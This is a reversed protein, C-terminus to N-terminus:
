ACAEIVEALDAISGNLFLAEILEEETGEPLCFATNLDRLIAVAHLSDGGVDFYGDLVGFDHHGLRQTWVHHIREQTPTVSTAPDASESQWPSPLAARDIKGNVTLPIHDLSLVRGPVMYKPLQTAVHSRVQQEFDDCSSESPVVYAVLLSQGSHPHSPADVLVQSVSSLQSITAEIEGLEVRYGNIKVQHDERGLIEIDGGPRFRGLDGTRYLREGTRPHVFFRESTREPDHLYGEAVGAGGIHIEGTVWTPCPEGWRNLVYMKQNSLAKGYPISAWGEKVEDIPYTISWISGETAGGLSVVRAQPLVARIRGPLDLPIWDGSLLVLRLGGTMGREELADTFLRMPAPVTNWITVSHQEVLDAWHHPDGAHTPHPIVLAGGAALIGFIDFVSLDFTAPALSLVRDASTLGARDMIDQVTNAASCHRIMVGKPEGTSGSTFIVYALDEPSSEDPVPEPDHLDLQWPDVVQVGDPIVDAAQALSTLVVKVACRELLRRRRATPTDPDIAVYAAGAQLVGLISAIQMSGPSIIVAVLEGPGPRHAQHIASAILRAQLALEAHTMVGTQDLIAPAGPHLKAARAALDHLRAPPIPAATENALAQESAATASLPVVQGPQHWVQRDHALRLLLAIYATAMEDIVSEHFLGEVVHWATLLEGGSEFVQHECWVQPTVVELSDLRGWRAIGDPVHDRLTTVHVVPASAEGNRRRLERLERVASCIEGSRLQAAYDSTEQIRALLTTEPGHDISVLGSVTGQGIGQAEVANSRHAVNLCFRPEKSFARVVEAFVALPLDEVAVMHEAAAKRLAEWDPAALYQIFHRHTPTDVDEPAHALPLDPRPNPLHELREPVPTLSGPSTFARVLPIQSVARGPEDIQDAIISLLLLLSSLDLVLMDADIHLRTKNDQGRDLRIRLAPELHDQGDWSQSTGDDTVVSVSCRPGSGLRSGEEAFVHALAPTAEAVSRVAPILHQWLHAKDMAAGVELSMRIRAPASLTLGRRGGALYAHQLESLPLLQNKDPGSQNKM